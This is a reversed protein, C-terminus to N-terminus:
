QALGEAVGALASGEEAKAKGLTALADAGQKMAPAMAAMQQMQMQQERAARIQAVDDDSRIIGAPAGQQDHVEDMIQDLDLKDWVDMRQGGTAAFINAAFGLVREITGTGAAKQAQAMVSTYEIRLPVRDLADPPMPILGKREMISYVRVIVPDLVEDTLSELAPGLMAIKEEKRESIEYATRQREDLFDLMRFLDVMFAQDIRESIAAIEERVQQLAGHNPAYLPEVKATQLPTVYVIEGPNTSVRRGRLFDPATLAPDAIKDQLKLKQGEAYQLQKIDGLADIAPSTSYVEDGVAGWRTALIPNEYHGGYFLYGHAEHDGGPIYDVQRWPRAMPGRMGDKGDPNPEVLSEITFPTDGKNDRLAEAVKVPLEAQPFREKIQKATLTYSRWFTDVRNRHNLGIAYTGVTFPYFRVVEEDDELCAMAAVGFAHRETYFNPLATYFNSRALVDRIRQAVDDCWQKVQPQEAMAPDPVTIRFWPRAKSTHGGMFGATMIRLARTARMNIIKARSRKAAKRRDDGEDFRGRTPDLYQSVQRWDAMYPEREAILAAKRRQCHQRLKSDM